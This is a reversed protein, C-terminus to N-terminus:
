AVRPSPTASRAAFAGMFATEIAMAAARLGDHNRGATPPDPPRGRYHLRRCVPQLRRVGSRGAEFRVTIGTPLGALAQADQGRLHTLRWLPRRACSGGCPVGRGGFGRPSLMRRPVPRRAALGAGGRSAHRRVHRRQLRGPPPVGRPRLGPRRGAQRALGAGASTSHAHGSGPVRRPSMSLILRAEGPRELALGLLTRQRLVRARTPAAAAVVGALVAGIAMSWTRMEGGAHSAPRNRATNWPRASTGSGTRSGGRSPVWVGSSRGRSTRTFCTSGRPSGAHPDPGSLAVAPKNAARYRPRREECQGPDPRRREGGRGRGRRIAGAEASTRSWGEVQLLNPEPQSCNWFVRVDGASVRHAFASAPLATRTEPTACASAGLVAMALLIIGRQMLSTRRPRLANGATRDSTHM